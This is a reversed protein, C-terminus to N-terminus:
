VAGHPVITPSRTNVSRALTLMGGGGLLLGLPDGKALSGLATGAAVLGLVLKTAPTTRHPRSRIRSPGKLADIDPADHVELDDDIARVGRVRSVAERVAGVESRLIAGKLEITDEGVANVDIAHPHSCHHGLVARIREVLVDPSADGRASSERMRARLGAARHSLDRIGIDAAHELEHKARVTKDRITARRVRGQRPDFFFMVAVGLAFGYFFSTEEKLVSRM